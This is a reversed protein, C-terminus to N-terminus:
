KGYYFASENKLWKIAHTLPDFVPKKLQPQKLVEKPDFDVCLFRSHILIWMVQMHKDVHTIM